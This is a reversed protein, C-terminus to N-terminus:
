DNDFKEELLEHIREPIDMSHEVFSGVDEPTEAIVKHFDKLAM